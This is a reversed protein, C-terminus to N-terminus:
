KYDYKRTSIKRLGASESQRPPGSRDCLIEYHSCQGDRKNRGNRRIVAFGLEKAWANVAKQLM